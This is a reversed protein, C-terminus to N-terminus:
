LLLDIRSSASFDIAESFVPYGFLVHTFSARASSTSIRCALPWVGCTSDVPGPSSSSSFSSASLPRIFASGSLAIGIMLFM